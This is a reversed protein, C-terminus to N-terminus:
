QETKTEELTEASTLLLWSIVAGEGTSEQGHEISPAQYSSPFLTWKLPAIAPQLNKKQERPGTKKLM